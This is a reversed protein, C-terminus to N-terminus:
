YIKISSDFFYKYNTGGTSFDAWGGIGVRLLSFGRFTYGGVADGTMAIVPVDMTRPPRYDVPLQFVSNGITGGTIFGKLHVFGFEDKRYQLPFGEPSNKWLGSLVGDIWNEQQKNAKLTEPEVWPQWKGDWYMKRKFFRLNDAYAFQFVEISDYGVDNAIVTFSWDGGIASPFKGDSKYPVRYFGSERLNDLSGDYFKAYENDTLQYNGGGVSSAVGTEPDVFITEGDPKIHGLETTSAIKNSHNSLQTKTSYDTAVEEKLVNIQNSIETDTEVKTYAGVQSATVGHPNDIRNAHEDVKAQAESPTEKADLETQLGAIQSIPHEHTSPTFSTPKNTLDNYNGSFGQVTVDGTQGNVSTVRHAKVNTLDSEITVLRGEVDTRIPLFDSYYTIVVDLGAELPAKFTITKENTETFNNPSFQPVGGVEVEIRNENILYTGKTLTFVTQGATSVFSEKKIFTQLEDLSEQLGNVETVGIAVNGNSDPLVNNVTSVAGSGDIGRQAVLTWNAGEKPIINISDKLCRWTSGNYQVYNNKYYYATPSYAGKHATSAIMENGNTVVQNVEAIKTNFTELRSTENAIRNQENSKRTTEDKVRQSEATVRKAEEGDREIENLIRDLENSKRATENSERQNEATVINSLELKLTELQDKLLTMEGILINANNASENAATTALVANDIFTTLDALANNVEDVILSFDTTAEQAKKIADNIREIIVDVEGGALFTIQLQLNSFRSMIMDWNENIKVREERTISNLTKHLNVM